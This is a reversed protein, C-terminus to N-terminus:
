PATVVIRYFGIPDNSNNGFSQTHSTLAPPVVLVTTWNAANLDAKYQIEYGYGPVTVFSGGAAGPVADPLAIQPAASQSPVPVVLLTVEPADVSGASNSARLQYRGSHGPAAPNFTLTASTAGQMPLGNYLWQYTPTPTGTALGSLSVSAGAVAIRNTPQASFVPPTLVTLAASNTTLTFANSVVVSYAGAAAATVNPLTLTPGTEGPLVTSKFRWQYTATAPGYAAVSFTASSGANATVDTPPVLVTLGASVSVTAVSNSATLTYLGAQNTTIGSLSLTSSTAGNVVGGNLKWSFTPTPTGTATGSFSAAGGVTVTRNTPAASFVPATNAGIVTITASRVDSDGGTCSAGSWIKMTFTFTGASTPTGTVTAVKTSSNVVSVGPAILYSSSCATQKGAFNTICQWSKVDASHSGSYQLIGTYPVGVTATSPVLSVASAGSVAHHAGLLAVSGTALRFVVAWASSAFGSNVIPVMSRVFPMLQLLAALVVPFIRLLSRNM